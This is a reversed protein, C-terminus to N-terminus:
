LHNDDYNMKALVSAAGIKQSLRHVRSAWEAGDPNARIHKALDECWQACDSVTIKQPDATDSFGGIPEAATM